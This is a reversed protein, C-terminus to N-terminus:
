LSIAAEDLIKEVPEPLTLTNKLMKGPAFELSGAVGVMIYHKVGSRKVAEIISPSLGQLTCFERGCRSGRAFRRYRRREKGPCEDLGTDQRRRAIATVSKGRSVLEAAAKGGIDGTAGILVVKM